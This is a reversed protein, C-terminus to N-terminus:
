HNGVGGCLGRSGFPVSRAAELHRRLKRNGGLGRGCAGRSGGTTNRGVAGVVKGDRALDGTSSGVM